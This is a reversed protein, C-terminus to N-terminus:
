DKTELRQIAQKAQEKRKEDIPMDVIKKYIDIAKSDCGLDYKYTLALDYLADIDSNRELSSVDISTIKNLGKEIRVIEKNAFYSRVGPYRRAILALTESAKEFDGLQSYSKAMMNLAPAENINYSLRLYWTETEKRFEQLAETYQRREYLEQGSYFYKGQHIGFISQYIVTFCAFLLVGNQRWLLLYFGSIVIGLSLIYSPLLSQISYGRLVGILGVVFVQLCCFIGTILLTLRLLLLFKRKAEEKQEFPYKNNNKKWDKKAGDLQRDIDEHLTKNKAKNIFWVGIRTLSVGIFIGAVVAFIASTDVQMLIGNMDM